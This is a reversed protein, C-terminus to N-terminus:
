MRWVEDSKRTHPSWSNWYVVVGDRYGTIEFSQGAKRFAEAASQMDAVANCEVRTEVNNRKVVANM